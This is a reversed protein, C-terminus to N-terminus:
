LCLVSFGYPKWRRHCALDSSMPVGKDSSKDEKGEEDSAQHDYSAMEICSRKIYHTQKLFPLKRM